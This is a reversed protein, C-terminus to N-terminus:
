KSSSLRTSTIRLAQILYADFFMANRGEVHRQRQPPTFYQLICYIYFITMFKIGVEWFMSCSRLISIFTTYVPIADERHGYAHQFRSMCRDATFTLCQFNSIAIHYAQAPFGCLFIVSSWENKWPGSRCISLRKESATNVIFLAATLPKAGFAKYFVSKERSDNDM